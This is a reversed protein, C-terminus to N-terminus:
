LRVQYALYVSQQELNAPTDVLTVIPAFRNNPIKQLNAVLVFNVDFLVKLIMVQGQNVRYVIHWVKMPSRIVLQVIQVRVTVKQVLLKHFNVWVAYNVLVQWIRLLKLAIDVLDVFCVCVKKTQVKLKLINAPKVLLVHM